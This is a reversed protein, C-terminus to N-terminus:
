IRQKGGTASSAAPMSSQNTLESKLQAMHNGFRGPFTKKLDHGIVDLNHCEITKKLDEVWSDYVEKDLLGSEWQHYINEHFILWQCLMERYRYTDVAISLNKGYSYWLNAVEPHEILLSNFSAAHATLSQTNSARALKYSARVQYVIFCLSVIVLIAQAIQSVDAWDDLKM